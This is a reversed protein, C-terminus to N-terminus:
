RCVGRTNSGTHIQGCDIYLDQDERWVKAGISQLIQEMCVVDAIDPCHQPCVCGRQLVAAAMMPLVANKSGQIRVEGNLPTGGEIEYLEM